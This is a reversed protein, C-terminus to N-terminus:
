FSNRYRQYYELVLVVYNRTEEYPPIGKYRSVAGPGANYAALTLALDNSYQNLLDCLYRAGGRLNQEPDHRNTVGYQRATDPMLQMLGVAGAKSVAQPQYGSEVTVVAHILAPKLPCSHAATEILGAFKQRRAVDVFYGKTSRFTQTFDVRKVV